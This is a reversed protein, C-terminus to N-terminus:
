TSKAVSPPAITSVAVLEAPAQEVTGDGSVAPVEEASGTVVIYYDNAFELRRAVGAIICAAGIKVWSSSLQNKLCDATFWSPDLTTRTLTKNNSSCGPVAATAETHLLDQSSTGKM